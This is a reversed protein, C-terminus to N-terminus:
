GVTSNVTLVCVWYLRVLGIGTLTINVQTLSLQSYFNFSTLTFRPNRHDNTIQRERTKYLLLTQTAHLKVSLFM